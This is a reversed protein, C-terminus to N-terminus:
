MKIAFLNEQLMKRCKTSDIHLKTKIIFHDLIFRIGCGGACFHSAMHFIHHFYFMEWTLQKEYLCDPVPKTYDWVASTIKLAGPFSSEEALIFHLELTVGSPAHFVVDHYARGKNTYGLESVLYDTARSLDEEHVLIDIDGSTRMWPEPYYQRLVSGKLPIFPIQAKELTRRIRELEYDLQAYRYIAMTKKQKVPVDCQPINIKEMAHVVLHALDHKDALKIVAAITEQTCAAAFDPQLAEGCVVSRLLAFLIDKTEM